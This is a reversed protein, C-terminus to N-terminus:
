RRSTSRKIRCAFEYAQNIEKMKRDALDQFETALDNV